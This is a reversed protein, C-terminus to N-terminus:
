LGSVAAGVGFEVESRSGGMGSEVADVAKDGRRGAVDDRRIPVDKPARIGLRVRNGTIKLVVVEADDGISIRQGLKRTLVLM